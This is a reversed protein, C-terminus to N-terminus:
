TLDPINVMRMWIVMLRSSQMLVSRLTRGEASADAQESDEQAADANEQATTEEPAETTTDQAATGGAGCGALLGTMMVAAITVALLKKM